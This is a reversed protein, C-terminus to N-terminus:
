AGELIRARIADATTRLREPQNAFETWVTEELQNGSTLGVKGEKQFEPDFRRFNMLKMYVGNNNRFKPGPVIGRQEAFRM